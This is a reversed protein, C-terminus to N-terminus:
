VEKEDIQQELEGIQTEYEEIAECFPCERGEYCIEKYGESCVTM